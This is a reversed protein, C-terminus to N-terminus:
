RFVVGVGGGLYDGDGFASRLAGFGGFIGFERVSGGLIAAHVCSVLSNDLLEALIRASSVGFDAINDTQRCASYLSAHVTENVRPGDTTEGDVDVRGRFADSDLCVNFQITAPRHRRIIQPFEQVADRFHDIGSRHGSLGIRNHM